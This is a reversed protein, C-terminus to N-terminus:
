GRGRSRGYSERLGHHGHYIGGDPMRTQDLEVAEDYGNLWTASDRRM